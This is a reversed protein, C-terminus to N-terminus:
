EPPLGSWEFQWRSLFEELSLTGERWAVLDAAGVTIRLAGPEVGSVVVVVEDYGSLGPSSLLRSVARPLPGVRAASGGQVGPDPQLLAAAECELVLVKRAGEPTCGARGPVSAAPVRGPEEAALGVARMVLWSGALLVLVPLLAWSRMRRRM